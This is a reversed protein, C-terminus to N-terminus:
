DADVIEGEIIDPSEATIEVSTGDAKVAKVSQFSTMAQFIPNLVGHQDDDTDQMALRVGEPIFGDKVIAHLPNAAGAISTPYPVVTKKRKVDIWENDDDRERFVVDVDWPTGSAIKALTPIAEILAQAAFRQAEIGREEIHADASMRQETRRKIARRRASAKLAEMEDPAEKLYNYYTSRAAGDVRDFSERLSLGSYHLVLAEEIAAIPTQLKNLPGNTKHHDM